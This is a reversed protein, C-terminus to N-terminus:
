YEGHDVFGDNEFAWDYTFGFHNPEVKVHNNVLTVKMDGWTQPAKLSWSKGDKIRYIFIGVPTSLGDNIRSAIIVEDKGDSDIDYQTIVYEWDKYYEDFDYSEDVVALIDEYGLNIKEGSEDILQAFLGVQYDFMNIKLNRGKYNFTVGNNDEDNSPKYLKFNSVGKVFCKNVKSAPKENSVKTLENNQTPAESPTQVITATENEATGKNSVPSNNCASFALLVCILFALKNM